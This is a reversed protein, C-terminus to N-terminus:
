FHACTCQITFTGTADGAYNGSNPDAMKAKFSGSVAYVDVLNGFVTDTRLFAINTFKLNYSPDTTPMTHYFNLSTAEISIDPQITNSPAFTFTTNAKSMIKNRTTSDLNALFVGGAQGFSNNPVYGGLDGYADDGRQIFQNNFNYTQGMFTANFFYNGLPNNNSGSNRSCGALILILLAVACIAPRFTMKKM